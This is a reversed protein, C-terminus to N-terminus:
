ATPPPPPTNTVTRIIVRLCIWLWRDLTGGVVIAAVIVGFLKLAEM